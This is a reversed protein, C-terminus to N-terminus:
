KCAEQIQILSILEISIFIKSNDYQASDFYKLEKNILKEMKRM